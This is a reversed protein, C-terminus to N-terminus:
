DCNPRKSKKSNLAPFRTPSTGAFGSFERIMHAQDVYNKEAAVHTWQNVPQKEAHGLVSQFRMIRALRKPSIGVWTRLLRELQRASVACRRALRNVPIAGASQEILHLALAVREDMRKAALHQLLFAELLDFRAETSNLKAMQEALENASTGLFKALPERRGVLQDVSAGTLMFAVGPRLRIGVVNSREVPASRVSKLRPGAVLCRPQSADPIEIVVYASADPLTQVCAGPAHILEWFCGLYPQLEAVPPRSVLNTGEILASLM